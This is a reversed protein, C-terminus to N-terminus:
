ARRLSEFRLPCVAAVSAAQKLALPLVGALQGGAGHMAALGVQEVSGFKESVEPREGFGSGGQM